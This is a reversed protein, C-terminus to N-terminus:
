DRTSDRGDSHLTSAHDNGQTRKYENVVWKQKGIKTRPIESVRIVRADIDRDVLEHLNQILQLGEIEDSYGPAPVVRIELRNKGVQAVQTQRINTVGKLIRYLFMGIDNGNTGIIADELRGIIREIMPYSRGCLCTGRKWRTRDTLRYRILPMLNNHFTTGVVYGYDNTSRGNEDVIEVYSYEPNIHLNGAECESAFAVREGMGYYEMTKTQFREEILERQHPQVTESQLFVFPIALHKRRERLYIALEHAVSAYAHLVYPNFEALADIFANATNESLHVSSLILQRGFRDFHWYPGGERQVPVVSDGRLAASRMGDQFGVWMLHRKLFAYETIMSNVSWLVRLPTGTSGGTEGAITWPFRFRPYFLSPKELLDQKDIIPYRAILADEAGDEDFDVIMDRYFPIVRSAVKLTRLLYSRTIRQIDEEGLKEHSLLTEMWQRCRTSRRILTKAYIAFDRKLSFLLM